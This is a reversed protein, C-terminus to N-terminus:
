ASQALRDQQDELRRLAQKFDAVRQREQEVVAAPARQVFSPNGLKGEAKGIEGLLRAIEKGIREREAGVDIPVHLALRTDGVVAVPSRAAAAAFAAEDAFAKVETLRSLAALLAACSAVFAADGIAYLPVKQGPSLNMEGRLSRVALVLAKLKDVWADAQPDVKQLEAQPYRATAVTDSSGETRRGAVVSARQWLE